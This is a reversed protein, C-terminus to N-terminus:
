RAGGEYAGGGVIYSPGENDNHADRHLAAPPFDVNLCVSTYCPPAEGLLSADKAVAHLLRTLYGHHLLTAGSVGVGHHSRQDVAGVTLSTIREESVNARVTKPLTAERVFDVLADM